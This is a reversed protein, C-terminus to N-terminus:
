PSLPVRWELTTGGDVGHDVAMSGGLREARHRLNGLGNGDARRELPVGVGDDIVTLTLTDDGVRVRIDVASAEAHKVVNTAAERVVAVLQDAVGEPVTLDVPGEFRVVAELSTSETTETVLDLVERRISRGPIRDRQLEFITTRIHRVTDDLDDVAHALREAMASDSTRAAASQLALGTAFLRQIVTDHLERAIRERDEVVRLRGVQDHLRATEVAVGAAAALGVALEEDVDTFAAGDAKETLYLNGFVAGRVRIPVGLFTTMPPHNPPFGYSDPHATLDPLRIPRPDVILLGLIGHGQPLPGIAAEAEEDLGTTLFESLGTGTEDLVGLAGYRAGVLVTAADVIRRLVVPLSLESGVSNIADLLHQLEKHDVSPTPM